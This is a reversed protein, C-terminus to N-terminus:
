ATRFKKLINCIRTLLIITVSIACLVFIYKILWDLVVNETSLHIRGDYAYIFLFHFLYIPYSNKGLWKFIPNDILKCAHINQSIAIIFFWIGFLSIDTLGFVHSENLAMGLIMVFAFLLLSYSTSRRANSKEKVDKANIIFYLVIGGLLVSAEAVISFTNLYNFYIYDDTGLPVHQSAVNIIVTSAFTGIVWVMIAKYLCDILKYLIPALLYFIALVGLYWEVGIISNTYHPFLGHLFFIHTLMNPITIHGQNGLWYGSGGVLIAYAFLALYYLPILKVFKKVWWKYIQGFSFDPTFAREMSCFTLYASILFFIQVGNKGINGIQGLISPLDAGGCHIMVVGCIAIRKMGNIWEKKM